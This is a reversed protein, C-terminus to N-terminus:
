VVYHYHFGVLEVAREKLKVWLYGGDRSHIRVVEVDVSVKLVDLLCIALKRALYAVTEHGLVAQRKVRSVELRADVGIRGRIGACVKVCLVQSQRRVPVIGEVQYVGVPDQAVDMDARKAYQIDFVAYGCRRYCEQVACGLLSHTLRNAREFPDLPSHFLMEVLRAKGIDVVIGMM